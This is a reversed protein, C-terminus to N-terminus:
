FSKHRVYISEFLISQVFLTLLFMGLIRLSSLDYKKPIDDGFRMLSRIATPATYFISIKHRQVLDWYRGNDPYSPTSEFMFTSCGNMLPGYVIYTHGTIWGADAVCAFVDSSRIDFSTATTHLAYMCYGGTTHLVGKPRGTSGSTYLIFMTDESDMWECPCYPRQAAVLEDFAIDRGPVMNTDGSSHHKFVFMKKVIGRCVEKSVATDCIQKLPLSRGGRKGGDATIVWKSESSAIREAIADASFGAFIVSHVAGIRACALMTMAIQPVMPMYITVVDGKQVGQAKLANAIKCTERLLEKFTIKRVDTPEDGEWIIAVEDGRNHPPLCWRDIANYCANIKGNLFWGVDGEAFSGSQVNTFPAFWDLKEEALEGWYKSTDKISAAHKEQVATHSTIM